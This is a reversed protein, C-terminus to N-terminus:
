RSMSSTIDTSSAGHKRGVITSRQISVTVDSSECSNRCVVLVCVVLLSYCVLGKTWFVKNNLPIGLDGDAM